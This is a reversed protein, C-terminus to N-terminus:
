RARKASRQITLALPMCFDKIFELITHGPSRGTHTAQNLRRSETRISAYATLLLVYVSVEGTVQSEGYDIDTKHENDSGWPDM